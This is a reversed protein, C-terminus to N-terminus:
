TLGSIAVKNWDFNGVSTNKALCVGSVSTLKAILGLINILMMNTEFGTILSFLRYTFV